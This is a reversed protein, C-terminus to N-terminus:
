LGLYKHVCMMEFMNLVWFVGAKRVTYVNLKANVTPQYTCSCFVWRQRVKMSTWKSATPGCHSLPRQFILRTMKEVELFRSRWAWAREGAWEQSRFPGQQAAPSAISSGCVLLAGGEQKDSHVLKHYVKWSMEINLAVISCTENM